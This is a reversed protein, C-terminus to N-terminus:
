RKVRHYTKLAEQRVNAAYRADGSVKQAFDAIERALCSHNRWGLSELMLVQIEPNDCAAVYEMMKQIVYPPCYNRTNRIASKRAKLTSQESTMDRLNEEWTAASQHISRSIRSRAQAKQVYRVEDRDFQRAFEEMLEKEPYMALANKAAFACRPSTNTAIVKSILAPLLRSDASKSVYNLAFRQVLEYSDNVGLKLAEIFSDGLNESLSHLCQLRVLPSNTTRFIRLLEDSSIAGAQHLQEIAMSQMDPLANDTVYKRWAKVNHSALLANVDATKVAPTFSFTPDGMVQSELYGSYQPFFGAMAGIGLLGMYRDSWKDQLVNVSNAVVAVTNGDNFIYENAICDDLHFSGTFCADIIVLPCNPQYGYRAFDEIVLDKNAATISDQEEIKADFTNSIWSAPIDFRKELVRMVSDVDQKRRAARRLYSRCYDQIFEKAREAMAIKPAGDMYQTDPAGHHHLIAFDLDLRQLENMLPFKSVEQQSHDLYEIANQQGKLWPFHEFLGAKEDMRAQISESIYGHGGFFFMQRLERPYRKAEVAKRLYRRLKEYRSVGGADTPRIRGSYIDPQLYQRSEAALTYYFYPADSDKDLYNFVMGFDDYYRDSPISSDKRPQAQNMKFASTLHQADRIMAVPIDGVLVAGEIPSEKQRHLRILEARISDPVGWRDEVIFVKLGNMQEIARAYADIEAKAEQYSEPDVVIAFGRKAQMQVAIFALMMVMCLRKM